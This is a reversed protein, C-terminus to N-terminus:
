LGCALVSGLLQPVGSSGFAQVRYIPLGATVSYHTM